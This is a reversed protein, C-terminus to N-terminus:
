PQRFASRYQGDAGNLWEEVTVPERWVFSQEARHVDKAIEQRTIQEVQKMDVGVVDPAPRIERVTRGKAANDAAILRDHWERTMTPPTRRQPPTERPGYALAWIERALQETVEGNTMTALDPTTNTMPVEMSESIPTRRIDGATEATRRTTPRDIVAGPVGPTATFDVADIELDDATEVTEGDQQHRIVPGIWYGHISVSRLAPNPGATLTAIDKAAATNAFEATYRASGDDAQTVSTLRGVIRTSDDGADHHTRMVIPLGDPSSLRTRMRAVAKGILERTYLRGNKSVGPTLMTGTIATM